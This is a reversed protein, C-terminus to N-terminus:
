PDQRSSRGSGRISTKRLDILMRAFARPPLLQARNRITVASLTVMLAVIGALTFVDAVNFAIASRDLDLVLPNPIGREWAVAAIGNGAAGAALLGANVAVLTSPVRALAVCGAFVCASMLIWAAGRPHYAWEATTALAKHALDLAALPLAIALLILTRRAM